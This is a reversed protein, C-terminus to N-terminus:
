FKYGDVYLFIKNRLIITYIVNKTCLDKYHYMISELLFLEKIKILLTIDNNKKCYRKNIM